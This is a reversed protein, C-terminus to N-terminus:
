CAALTHSQPLNRWSWLLALTSTHPWCRGWIRACRVKECRSRLLITPRWRATCPPGFNKEREEGTIPVEAQLVVLALSGRFPYLACGRGRPLVDTTGATYQTHTHHTPTPARKSCPFVSIKEGGIITRRLAFLAAKEVFPRTASSAHSCLFHM